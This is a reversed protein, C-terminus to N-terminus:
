GGTYAISMTIDGSYSGSTQGVAPMVTGGIWVSLTGGAGIRLPVPNNPDVNGLPAAQGGGTGDDYSADTGSFVIQMTAPLTSHALALPLTISVSVEAAATGNIAWAGASAADTKAVVKNVGGTVAGFTLDHTGSISLSSAVSATAQIIGIEQASPSSAAAVILVILLLTLKVGQRLM